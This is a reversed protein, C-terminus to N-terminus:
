TNFAVLTITLTGGQPVSVCQYQCGIDLLPQAGAMSPYADPGILAFQGSVSVGASPAFLDGAVALMIPWVNVSVGLTNNVNLAWAQGFGGLPAMVPITATHALTDTPLVADVLVHSRIAPSAPVSVDVAGEVTVPLTNTPSPAAGAIQAINVNPSGASSANTPNVAPRGATASYQISRGLLSTQSTRRPGTGGHRTVYVGAQQLLAPDTTTVPQFQGCAIMYMTAQQTTAGYELSSVSWPSAMLSEPNNWDTQGVGGDTSLILWYPTYNAVELAKGQGISGLQIPTANPFTFPANPTWPVGSPGSFFYGTSIQDDLIQVLIM